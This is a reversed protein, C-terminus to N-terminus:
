ANVTKFRTSYAILLLSTTFDGRSLKLFIIFHLFFGWVRTAKLEDDSDSSLQFCPFLFSITSKPPQPHMVTSSYMYIYILYRDEIKLLLWFFQRFGALIIYVCLWPCVYQNSAPQSVRSSSSSMPSAIHTHLMDSRDPQHRFKKKLIPLSIEKHHISVVYLLWRGQNTAYVCGSPYVHQCELHNQGVIM